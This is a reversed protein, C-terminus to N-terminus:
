KRTREFSTSIETYIHENEHPQKLWAEIEDEIGMVQQGFHTSLIEHNNEGNHDQELIFVSPLAQVGFTQSADECDDIDAQIFIIDKRITNETEFSKNGFKDSIEEMRPSVQFFILEKQISIAMEFYSDVSQSINVPFQRVKSKSNQNYVSPFPRQM